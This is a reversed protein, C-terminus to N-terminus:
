REKNSGWLESSGDCWPSSLPSSFAGLFIPLTWSARTKQCLPDIMTLVPISPFDDFIPHPIRQYNLMAISFPGNITAKGATLPFQICLQDLHIPKQSHRYDTTLVGGCIQHSSEETEQLLGSDVPVPPSKASTVM